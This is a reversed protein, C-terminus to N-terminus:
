ANEPTFVVIKAHFKDTLIGWVDDIQVSQPPNVADIFRRYEAPFLAGAGLIEIQSQQNTKETIPAVMQAILKCINVFDVGKATYIHTGAALLVPQLYADRVLKYAFYDTSFKCPPQLWINEKSNELFGNVRKENTIQEITLTGAAAAQQWFELLKLREKENKAKEREAAAAREAPSKISERIQRIEARLAALETDDYNTKNPEM